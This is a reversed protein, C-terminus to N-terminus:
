IIHNFLIINKYSLVLKSQSKLAADELVSYRSGNESLYSSLHESM